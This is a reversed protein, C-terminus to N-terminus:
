SMDRGNSQEVPRDPMISAALEDSKLVARLVEEELERISFPKTLVPNGASDLFSSTEPSVTDGTIFVVKSALPESIGQILQYLEQGSMGPMKLDLLICDYKINQIKRWAEQGDEALDVTYRETELYKRLLDRIHPEDDVVLLHRTTNIRSASTPSRFVMIEDPVVVPLTIHFTTSEGEVSEAWIDGGHQKIIGYSISLGLGTGQGVEKTTFFPEFIRHLNESPIGPGDDKITIKIGDDSIATCVGIQGRGRTKHIAQEANTLINLFVQVMQHEDIMTRRIEPSLQSVVEINSVKFDYSKMELSRILVSNLDLYQKETDRRRAFFLLNQVIKAARQAEDYITQIDGAVEEPLKNNLVMESYGLVSTLPNNIEHAVGAALEGITALRATEQLREQTEKRETIDEAIGVIRYIEGAENLIPFARHFIWRTTGDPRIIRFEEEFEGTSLQNDLAADVRYRDDPHVADIWLMPNEYLGECPQGWIEEFTDNVYLVEYDGHDLLFVVERMNESIQRFRTESERSEQEAQAREDELRATEFLSGLGNIIRLVLSVREPTFHNHDFSNVIVVGVVSEGSIIPAAMISKVGRQVHYGVSLPHNSYDNIVLTEKDRYVLAPINGDYPVISTGEPPEGTTGFRRLGGAEPVRFAASEAGAIRALEEMVPSAKSEFSGPQALISSVKLLGGLEESRQRESEEAQRTQEYLQANAIAGAIQNGVREALDLHQQGYVGPRKSRIQLVGIVSDRDILPVGLFSRLGARYAPVLGPFRQRLDAESDAVLMKPSRTRAVEETLTGGLPISDGPRRGAVDTGAIYTPKTVGLTPDIIAVSIRDFPILKGVEESLREYVENIDLSSHVAM